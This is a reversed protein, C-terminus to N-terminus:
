QGQRTVLLPIRIYAIDTQLMKAEIPPVKTVERNVKLTEPESRNNGILTLTAPKDAPNALYAYAQVLNM